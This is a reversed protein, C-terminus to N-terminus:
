AALGSTVGYRVLGADSQVDLKRMAARKQASVTQKSLRVVAAIEGLSLGSLFLRVVEVEARTLSDIRCAQAEIQRAAQIEPSLYAESRFAAHLGHRLHEPLDRKSVIAHVGLDELAFLVVPNCIATLVLLKLGPYQHRIRKFMGLGDGFDAGSMDYESVLVECEHEGLVDFLQSSSFACAVVCAGEIRSLEIQAGRLCIPFADALVVRIAPAATM